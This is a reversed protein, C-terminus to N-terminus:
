QPAKNIRELLRQDARTGFALADISIRDDEARILEMFRMEEPLDLLQQVGLICAREGSPPNSTDFRILRQLSEVPRQHIAMAGVADVTRDSSSKAHANM